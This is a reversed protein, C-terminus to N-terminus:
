YIKWYYTQELMEGTSLVRNHRTCFLRITIEIEEHWLTHVLYYVSINSCLISLLAKHRINTLDSSVKM